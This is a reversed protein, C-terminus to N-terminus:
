KDTPIVHINKMNYWKIFEVVAEYTAKIDEQQMIENFKAYKNKDEFSEIKAVVQLLWNWDSDFLMESPYMQQYETDHPQFYLQEGSGQNDDKQWYDDVEVLFEAIIINKETSM